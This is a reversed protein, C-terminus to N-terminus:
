VWVDIKKRIFNAFGVCVAYNLVLFTRPMSLYPFQKVRDKMLIGMFALIYFSVQGALTLLYVGEHVLINSALLAMIFLPSLLRTIKHSFFQFFFKNDVVSLLGPMLALLQFNGTLTRIKRKLERGYEIPADDYAVAEEDFVVRYGKRMIRMPIIVDDLITGEPM